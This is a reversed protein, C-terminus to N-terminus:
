LECYSKSTTYLMRTFKSAIRYKQRDPTIYNLFQLIGEINNNLLEFMLFIQPLIM